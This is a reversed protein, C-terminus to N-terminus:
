EVYTVAYQVITKDDEEIITITTMNKDNTYMQIKEGDSDMNMSAKWKNNKMEDKITKSIESINGNAKIVFSVMSGENTNFTAIGEMKGEVIYINNPFNDPLESNSNINIEEGNGGKISMSANEGDIDFNIDVKEGNENEIAMELANGIANATADEVKEQMTEESNCSNLGIVLLSSMIFLNVKKM